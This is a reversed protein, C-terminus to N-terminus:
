VRLLKCKDRGIPYTSLVGYKQQELFIAVYRALMIHSAAELVVGCGSNSSAYVGRSGLYLEWAPMIEALRSAYRLVRRRDLLVTM